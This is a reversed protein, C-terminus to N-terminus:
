DLARVLRQVERSLLDILYKIKERNQPSLRSYNIEIAELDPDRNPPSTGVGFAEFVETEPRGLGAALAKITGVKFDYAAGTIIKYILADSVTHGLGQARRSVDHVTLNYERMARQLYEAPSERNVKRLAMDLFPPKKVEDAEWRAVTSVTVGLRAALQSQTLGAKKRWAKLEKGTM